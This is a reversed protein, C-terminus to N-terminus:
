SLDLLAETYEKAKFNILDEKQEGTGIFSIPLNLLQAIPILVGGKATGDLKTIIISDIDCIEKFVEAQKVSNQGINGDLVLVIETPFDEDIKKIVRIIKSLENMLDNKNHLRGATDIILIDIKKEIAQKVSEYALAAPDSKEKASFFESKTRESWIKLQDVAAARFTDAAVLGVKKGDTFFNHAIKGVTATKGVGNVGVILFIYPKTTKTKKKELPELLNIIKKQIVKKIKIVTPDIMKSKRLDDIVELSFKVGMDSSILIEELESLTAEDIKKGKIVKNIKTTLKESSKSLGSKLKKFWGFVM